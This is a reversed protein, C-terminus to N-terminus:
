SEQEPAGLQAQLGAAAERGLRRVAGRLFIQAPWLWVPLRFEARYDIRTGHELTRFEIRDVVQVRGGAGQLVVRNPREFEVIEFTYPRTRGRFAIKLAFRDGLGALEDGLLEASRRAPDWEPLNRLDAVYAFAADIPTAVDVQEHITLM